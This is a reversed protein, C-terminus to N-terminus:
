LVQCIPTGSPTCGCMVGGGSKARAEASVRQFLLPLSMLGNAHFAAEIDQMSLWLQAVDDRALAEELSVLAATLEPHEALVAERALLLRQVDPLLKARLAEKLAAPAVIVGGWGRVEAHESLSIGSGSKPQNGSGSSIECSGGSCNASCSQGALVSSWPLSLCLALVLGTRWM